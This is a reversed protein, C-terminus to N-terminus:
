FVPCQGFPALQVKACGGAWESLLVADAPAGALRTDGGAAWTEEPPAPSDRSCSAVIAFFLAAANVRRVVFAFATCCGPGSASTPAADACHSNASVLGAGIGSGKGAASRPTRVRLCVTLRDM